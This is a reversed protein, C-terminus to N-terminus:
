RSPRSTGATVGPADSRSTPPGPRNQFSQRPGLRVEGRRTVAVSAHSRDPMTVPLSVQRPTMELHGVALGVDRRWVDVVPTGGGYDSANMGQFNDQAFGEKLPLVWDPRSEYTGGQYSWFAPGGRADAAVILHRNSTWAGIPLEDQGENVYRVQLVALGPFEDYMTVSVTKRLRGAVGSLLWRRGTGLADQVREDQQGVLAFDVIERGSVTVTESAAFPGLATEAGGLTAVVRSRLASDFELRIGKGELRAAVTGQDASGSAAMCSAIMTWGKIGMCAGGRLMGYRPSYVGSRSRKVLPPPAVYLGVAVVGAGSMGKGRRRSFELAAGAGRVARLRRSTRFSAPASAPAPKALSARAAPRPSRSACAAGDVPRGFRTMTAPPPM